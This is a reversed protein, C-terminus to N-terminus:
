RSDIIIYNYGLVVPGLAMLYDLSKNGDVDYLYQGKAKKAYVPFIGEVFSSPSKSFTQSLAPVLRKGKNKLLKSNKLGM